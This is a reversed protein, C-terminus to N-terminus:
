RVAHYAGSTDLPSTWQIQKNFWPWFAAAFHALYYCVFVHYVLPLFQLRIKYLDTRTTAFYTFLLVFNAVPLHQCTQMLKAPVVGDTLCLFYM